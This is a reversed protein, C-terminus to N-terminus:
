CVLKIPVFLGISWVTNYPVTIKQCHLLTLELTLIFVAFLVKITDNKCSSPKFNTYWNLLAHGRTIFIRNGHSFFPKLSLWFLLKSFCCKEFYKYSWIIKGDFYIRHKMTENLCNCYIVSYDYSSFMPLMGDSRILVKISCWTQLLLVLLIQLSYFSEAMRRIHVLPFFWKLCAKLLSKFFFFYWFFVFIQSNGSWFQNSIHLIQTLNNILIRWLSFTQLEIFWYVFIGKKCTGNM